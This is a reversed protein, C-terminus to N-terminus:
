QKKYLKSGTRVVKPLLAVWGDEQVKLGMDGFYRKCEFDWCYNARTWNGLLDVYEQLAKDVEPGFSPLQKRLALFEAQKEYHYQCAWNMAAAVDLDFLRMCHAVLNRNLDGVAQEM